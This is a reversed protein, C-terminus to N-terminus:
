HQKCGESTCTSSEGDSKLQIEKADLAKDLFAAVGWPSDEVVQRGWTITAALACPVCMAVCIGSAAPTM